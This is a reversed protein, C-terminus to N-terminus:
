AEGPGRADYNAVLRGHRHSDVASEDFFTVRLPAAPAALAGQVVIGMEDPPPGRGRRRLHAVAGAKNILIDQCSKLEGSHPHMRFYLSPTNM